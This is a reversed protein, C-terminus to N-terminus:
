KQENLLGAQRLLSDWAVNGTPTVKMNRLDSFSMGPGSSEQPVTDNKGRRSLSYDLRQQLNVAESKLKNLETNSGGLIQIKEQRLKNKELANQLYNIDKAEKMSTTPGKVKLREFISPIRDSPVEPKDLGNRIIAKEAAEKEAPSKASERLGRVIQDDSIKGRMGRIQADVNDALIKQEGANMTAGLPQASANLAQGERMLYMAQAKRADIPTVPQGKEDVYNGQFDKAMKDLIVMRGDGTLGWQQKAVFDLGEALHSKSSAAAAAARAHAAQALNEAIESQLKKLELSRHQERFAGEKATWVDIYKHAEPSYAVGKVDAQAMQDAISDPIGMSRHKERQTRYIAMDDRQNALDQLKLTFENQSEQLKQRAKTDYEALRLRSEAEAQREKTRFEQEQRTLGVQAEYGRKERAIQQRESIQGKIIDIGTIRKIEELRDKRAREEQERQFQMKRMEAVQQQLAEGPKDSLLISIAGPLSSLLQRGIGPRATSEPTPQLLAALQAQLDSVDVPAGASFPPPPAVGEDPMPFPLMPVAPNLNNSFITNDAM